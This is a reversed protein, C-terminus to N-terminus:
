YRLARLTYTAHIKPKGCVWTSGDPEDIVESAPQLTGDSNVYQEEVVEWKVGSRHTEVALTLTDVPENVRYKVEPRHPTLRFRHSRRDVRLRMGEGPSLLGGFVVGVLGRHGTVLEAASHRGPETSAVPPLTTGISSPLELIHPGLSNLRLDYRLVERSPRLWWYRDIYKTARVSSIHYGRPKAEESALGSVDDGDYEKEIWLALLGAAVRYIVARNTWTVVTGNVNKRGFARRHSIAQGAGDLSFYRRAHSQFYRSAYAPPPGDGREEEDGTDLPISEIVREIDAVLLARPNPEGDYQGLLLAAGAVAEEDLPGQHKAIAYLEGYLDDLFM